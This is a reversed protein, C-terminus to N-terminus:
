QCLIMPEARPWREAGLRSVLYIAEDQDSPSVYVNVGAFRHGTPRADAPLVAHLDLLDRYRGDLFLGRPDRVYQRAGSAYPSVTGPPWGIFMFTASGWNCHGPGAITVLEFESVQEGNRIWVYGPHPPPEDFLVAVSGIPAAGRIGLLNFGWALGSVLALAGVVLAVGSRRPM